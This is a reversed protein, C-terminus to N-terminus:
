SREGQNLVGPVGSQRACRPGTLARLVITMQPRGSGPPSAQIQGQWGGLVKLPGRQTRQPMHLRHPSTQPALVAGKFLDRNKHGFHTIKQGFNM